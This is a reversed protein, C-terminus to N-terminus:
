LQLVLEKAISQHGLTLIHNIIDYPARYPFLRDFLCHFQILHQPGVGLLFTCSPSPNSDILHLIIIPYYCLQCLKSPLNGEKIALGFRAIFYTSHITCKTVSSIHAWLIHILWLLDVEYIGILGPRAKVWICVCIVKSPPTM